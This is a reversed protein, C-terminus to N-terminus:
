ENSMMEKFCVSLRRQRMLYFCLKALERKVLFRLFASVNIGREKAVKKNLRQEKESEHKEM